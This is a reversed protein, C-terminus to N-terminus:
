ITWFKNLIHVSFDEKKWITEFNSLRDLYLSNLKFIIFIFFNFDNMTSNTWLFACYRCLSAICVYLLTVADGLRLIDPMFTYASMLVTWILLFRRLFTCFDPFEKYIEHLNVNKMVSFTIKKGENHKQFSIKVNILLM